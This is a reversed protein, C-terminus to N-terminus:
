YSVDFYGSGTLAVQPRPAADAARSTFERLGGAVIDRMQQDTAGQQQADFLRRASAPPHTGATEIRDVIPKPPHNATAPAAVSWRASASGSRWRM